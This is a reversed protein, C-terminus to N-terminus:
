RAAAASPPDKPAVVGVEILTATLDTDSILTVVVRTGNTIDAAKFTKKDKTIKTTKTLKFTHEKGARDKVMVHDAAIMTVTGMVKHNPHAAVGAGLVAM